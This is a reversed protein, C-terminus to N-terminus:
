NILAQIRRLLKEYLDSENEWVIHSYQRTDFHVKELEEKKCMWIVQRGIGMGFGAEFYVGNKQHTFDCVLFKSKRIEAIILDCIKENTENRDVRYPKYGADKIAEKISDEYTKDMSKDFSMAVFAQRSEFYEGSKLDAVKNWGKATLRIDVPTRELNKGMKGEIFDNLSLQKMIFFMSNIDCSDSYLLPYDKETVTIYEGAFSSIMSLNILARNIRDSLLAPFDKIIEEFTIAYEIDEAIEQDKYVTLIPLQKVSRSRLYASMKLGEKEYKKSGELVFQEAEYTIEFEGCIYCNYTKIQRSSSHEMDANNKCIPCKDM